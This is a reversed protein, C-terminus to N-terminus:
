LALGAPPFLVRLTTGGDPSSEVVIGGGSRRVTAFVTALGLGTGNDKTTFFTEFLREQTEDDM